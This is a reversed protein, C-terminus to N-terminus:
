VSKMLFGQKSNITYRQSERGDSVRNRFTIKIETSFFRKL